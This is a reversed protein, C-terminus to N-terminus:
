RTNRSLQWIKDKIKKWNSIVLVVPILLWLWNWFSYAERDVKKKSQEKKSEAKKKINNQKKEKQVINTKNDKKSAIEMKTNNNKVTTKTTKKSNFLEQKKGNEVFSAPKLVDLPEITEEIITTQDQNNITIKESSKINSDEVISKDNKSLDTLETKSSDSKNTKESKRSGCSMLWMSTVFM